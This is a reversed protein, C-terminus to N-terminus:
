LLMLSIAMIAMGFIMGVLVMHSKGYSHATPLIEDMSIYVMIGAVFALLAALLADSMFSYLLLFSVVGGIPEAIGSILAYKFAKMKDGTACFIPSAVSIGEPINHLAIAIAIVMGLKVDTLTASFTVIGEPFNHIAIAFATFVGLRMLKCNAGQRRGQGAKKGTIRSFHHPNLQKPLMLDISAIFFIGVFFAAVGAMEGIGEIADPLLEMFSVYVMVGASLGLSFTLLSVSPKKQLLVILGGIGTCLGAITTLLLAFLVDEM